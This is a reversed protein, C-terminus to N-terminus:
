LKGDASGGLNGETAAIPTIEITRQICLESDVALESLFETETLITDYRSIQMTELFFSEEWTGEVGGVQVEAFDGDNHSVIGRVKKSITM